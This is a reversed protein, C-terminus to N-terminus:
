RSRPSSVREFTEVGRISKPVGLRITRWVKSHEFSRRLHIHGQVPYGAITASEKTVILGFPPTQLEEYFCVLNFTGLHPDRARIWTGFANELDDLTESDRKLTELIAPNASSSSVRQWRKSLGKGHAALKSGRHPTSLFAIAFTSMHLQKMYGEAAQKSLTLAKKAVLGGLSHAVIIIPRNFSHNSHTRLRGVGGLLNMAHGHLNNQGIRQTGVFDADYGFALIRANEMGEVQPLLDVPWYVESDGTQKMWTKYADGTLGHIFLIDLKLDEPDVNNPEHLVNLGLTRGDPFFRKAGELKEAPQTITPRLDQSSPSTPNQPAPRSTASTEAPTSDAGAQSSESKREKKRSLLKHQFKM